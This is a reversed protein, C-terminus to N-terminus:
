NGGNNVEKTLNRLKYKSKELYHSYEEKLIQACRKQKADFDPSGETDNKDKIADKYKTNLWPHSKKVEKIERYPIYSCLFLWLVELFHNVADEANGKELDSWDYDELTKQLSKWHAKSLQFGYRRICQEQVSPLQVEACISRHDSVYPGVKIVIGAIDSLFLDFLYDKRTPESVLQMLGFSDCLEKLDAGQISNGNSFRLWKSHHINLDGALMISTYEDAFENLEEGLADFGDHM